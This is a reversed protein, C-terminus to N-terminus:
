DEEVEKSPSDERDKEKEEEKEVQDRKELVVLLPSDIKSSIEERINNIFSERNKANAEVLIVLDQSEVKDKVAESIDDVKISNSRIQTKDVGAIELQRLAEKKMASTDTSEREDEDSDEPDGLFLLNAELKSASTLEYIVTAFRKSIQNIDYVPILLRKLESIPKVVFLAQCDHELIVNDITKSVDRTFVLETQVDFSEEELEKKVKDLEGRTEEGEEEKYQKPSTQEPLKKYGLLLIELDTFGKLIGLPISEEQPLSVPLLIRPKRLAPEIHPPSPNQLTKGRAYILYFLTSILLVGGGLLLSLKQMFFILAFSALLGIIPIVPFGPTKFGPVYWVPRNRRLKLVCGCILGYIVLHLLSATEALVELNGIFLVGIIPLGVLFIARHPTGFREHISSVWRPVLGDNSLAYITRSSSLISANASSLTALLGAFLVILAGINGILSRAVEVMATEGFKELEAASLVSNSVFLALIYLSTVILVSGVLARPLNRQPNIIEGGVTAIQVFGLYSTFILASVGVVPSLGKPAFPEPLKTEGIFGLAQLLGYLFLLTLIGTLTLVITNQLRGASKTGLINIITLILGAALSILIMPEGLEYGSEQLMEILYSAFGYLYFSSAFVLGIWQGVGILMGWFPGFTRSVFYYGGGSAPMATALEATCLAVILAIAGALLFSLIAAPGAQGSAIGPFVFIGAGIMIGVGISIAVRLTITRSLTSQSNQTKSM